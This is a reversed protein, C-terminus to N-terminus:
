LRSGFCPGFLPNQCSLVYWMSSIVIKANPQGMKNLLLPVHVNIFFVRRLWSLRFSLLCINVVLIQTYHRLLPLFNIAINVSFKTFTRFVESKSRLCYVQTFRSYDDIFTVYYIHGGFYENSMLGCVDSHILYLIEEFRTDGSTLPNRTNKGLDGRVYEM